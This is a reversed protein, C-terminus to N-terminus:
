RERQQQHDLRVPQNGGDIFGLRTSEVDGEGNGGLAHRREQLAALRSHHFVDAYFAIRLERGRDGLQGFMQAPLGFLIQGAHNAVTGSVADARGYALHAILCATRSAIQKFRHGFVQEVFLRLEHAAAGKVREISFQRYGPVRKRADFFADLSEFLLRLGLRTLTRRRTLARCSCTIPQVMRRRRKRLIKKVTTRNPSSSSTILPMWSRRTRKSMRTVVNPRLNSTGRPTRSRRASSLRPGIKTLNPCTSDVRRSKSGTSM